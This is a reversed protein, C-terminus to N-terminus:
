HKKKNKIWESKPSPIGLNMFLSLEQGSFYDINGIDNESKWRRYDKVKNYVINFSFPICCQSVYCMKSQTVLYSIYFAVM